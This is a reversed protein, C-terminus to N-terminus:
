LFLVFKFGFCCYSLQQYYTFVIEDEELADIARLVINYNDGYAIM